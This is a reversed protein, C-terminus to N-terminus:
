LKQLSLSHAGSSEKYPAVLQAEPKLTGLLAKRVAKEVVFNVV